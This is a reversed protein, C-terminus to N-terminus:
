TAEVLSLLDSLSKIKGTTSLYGVGRHLHLKFQKVLTQGDIPLDDQLCRVKLLAMLLEENGAGAFTRWSMEVNSDTVIDVQQPLSKEAISLCFAWRCLINWQSLGTKRKLNSLRDKTENSLRINELSTM